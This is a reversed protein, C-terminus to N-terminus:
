RASVDSSNIECELRNGHHLFVVSISDHHVWHQEGLYDVHIHEGEKSDQAFSEVTKALMQLQAADGSVIINRNRDVAFRVKEGAHAVVRIKRACDSYPSPDPVIECDIDASEHTLCLAFATLEVDNGAVEIESLQGITYVAKM